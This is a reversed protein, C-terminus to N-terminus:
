PSVLRYKIGDIQKLIKGNPRDFDILRVRWFISRSGDQHFDTWFQGTWGLPAPAEDVQEVRTVPAHTRVEAVYYSTEIGCRDKQSWRRESGVGAGRFAYLKPTKDYRWDPVLFEDYRWWKSPAVVTAEAGSVTVHAAKVTPEGPVHLAVAPDGYLARNFLQYRDSGGKLQKKELVALRVCNTAYRHAQGVSQGGLIGNWFETRYHKQQGIGLRTNGAVAVAGNRLLRVPASRGDSDRDLSMTSCGGTEIVAPALLVNSQWDVFGGLGMWSSHESHCIAAVDRLPSSQDLLAKGDHHVTSGFGVNRFGHDMLSEWCATACRSKWSRHLLDRYVLGRSATLTASWVDEGVFRGVAIDSFPDTDAEAFPIDTPIDEMSWHHKLLIARPIVDPRGLICLYEPHRGLAKYCADLRDRIETTGPWTLRLDHQGIGDKRGLNITYFRDGLRVRDATQLPGDYKRSGTDISVRNFANGKTATLVFPYPKGDLIIEGTRWGAESEPAGEIQEKATQIGDFPLKWQTDFPLMAVAGSRGAALLPGALSTKRVQGIGRDLPNVAALYDVDVEHERMWELVALDNALRTVTLGDVYPAAAGVALIQRTRLRRIGALATESFGDEGFFLLPVQLRAALSSAVLADAYSVVSCCVVRDAAGWFMRALSAAATEADTAPVPKLPRTSPSAFLALAEAESIARNYVRVGDLAGAFHQRGPLLAGIRLPATVGKVGAHRIGRRVQARRGDIYVTSIGKAYTCTIHTWRDTRCAEAQRVRTRKDGVDFCISQRDEVLSISWGPGGPALPRRGLVCGPASPKIWFAATLEDVGSTAAACEGYVYKGDFMLANGGRGKTWYSVGARNAMDDLDWSGVLGEPTGRKPPSLARDYIRVEDLVGDLRPGTVPTQNIRWLTNASSAALRGNVFLKMTADQYTGAVHVAKGAECADPARLEASGDGVRFILTRKELHFSWPPLRDAVGNKSLICCTQPGNPALRFAVTLPKATGTGTPSQLRDEKGTLSVAGGVHGRIWTGKGYLRLDTAGARDQARDGSRDDMPWYGVLGRQTPGTTGPLREVEMPELARDYIRLEDVAGAFPESELGITLPVTSNNPTSWAINRRTAKLKGNLYIRSVKDAHTCTVHVWDGPEYANEVALDSQHWAADGGGIRFRLANREKADRLMVVWGPARATPDHKGIVRQHGVRGPKMWFAVTLDRTSGPVSGQDVEIAQGNFQYGGAESAEWAQLRYITGAADGFTTGQGEDFRWHVTLGESSPRPQAPTGVIYANDPAYRRLFDQTEPRLTAYPNVALVVPRGRNLRTAAPIAALYAHDQWCSTKPMPVLIAAKEAATCILVPALLSCLFWAPLSGSPRVHGISGSVTKPRGSSPPQATM